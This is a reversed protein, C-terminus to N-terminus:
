FMNKCFSYASFYICWLFAGSVELACEIISYAYPVKKLYETINQILYQWYMKLLVTLM